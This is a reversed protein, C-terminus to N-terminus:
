PIAHWLAMSSSLDSHLDRATRVYEFGISHMGKRRARVRVLVFGFPVSAL